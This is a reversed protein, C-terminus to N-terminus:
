GQEGTKEAKEFCGLKCDMAGSHKSIIFLHYLFFSYIM